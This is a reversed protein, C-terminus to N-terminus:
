DALIKKVKRLFAKSSALHSGYKDFDYTINPLHSYCRQLHRSNCFPVIDDNTSHFVYMKAKPLWPPCISDSRGDIPYHVMGSRLLGDYLRKTEPESKDMGQPTLWHSLNHNPMKFFLSLISYKKNEIYRTFKDSMAETFFHSPKLNLNYAESTGLVLMPILAPFSTHRSQIYADYTSAVDHPGCGLFCHKVYIKDAYKEEILRLTWLAVAAGQSFGLIYISDMPIALDMSDLVPTVALLMDVTNRATLEGALYPHIREHTVGYGIYDPMVLIYDDRFLTAEGTPKVSPAEKNAAITFHPLLIIGKPEKKEPISLLGSLTITDGHQDSSLYTIPREVVKAALAVAWLLMTFLFSM